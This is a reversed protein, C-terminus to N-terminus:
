EKEEEDETPTVSTSAKLNVKVDSKTKKGYCELGQNIGENFLQEFEAIIANLEEEDRASVSGLTFESKVISLEVCTSLANSFLSENGPDPANRTMCKCFSKSFKKMQKEQVKTQAYSNLGFLCICASLILSKLTVQNM